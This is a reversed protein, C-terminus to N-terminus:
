METALGARDVQTEGDDFGLMGLLEDIPLVMKPYAM